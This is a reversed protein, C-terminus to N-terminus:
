RAARATAGPHPEAPPLVGQPRFGDPFCQSVMPRGLTAVSACTWGTPCPSGADCARSCFSYLSAGDDALLCLGGAGRACEADADCFSGLLGDTACGPASHDTPVLCDPAGDEDRDQQDECCRSDFAPYRCACATGPRDLPGHGEAGTSEVCPSWTGEMDCLSLGYGGHLSGACWRRAGPSCRAADRPSPAGSGKPAPAARAEPRVLRARDAASDARSVSCGALSVLGALVWVTRM